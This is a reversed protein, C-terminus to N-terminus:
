TFILGHAMATIVTTLTLTTPTTLIMTATTIAEGHAIGTFVTLGYPTIMTIVLIPIKMPMYM